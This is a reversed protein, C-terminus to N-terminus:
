DEGLRPRGSADLLTEACATFAAFLGENTTEALLTDVAEATGLIHAAGGLLLMHTDEDEAPTVLFIFLRARRADLTKFEVGSPVSLVGAVCGALGPVRCHPLAIGRGFGTTGCTERAEFAALLTAEDVGDLRPNRKALQAVARL